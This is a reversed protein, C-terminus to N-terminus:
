RSPSAPKEPASKRAIHNAVFIFEDVYDRLGDNNLDHQPASSTGVEKLFRNWGSEDLTLATKAPPAVTLPYEFEEAGAAKARNTRNSLSWSEEM